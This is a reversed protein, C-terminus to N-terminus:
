SQRSGRIGLHSASCQNGIRSFHRQMFHLRISSAPQHHHQPWDALLTATGFTISNRPPNMAPIPTVYGIKRPLADRDLDFESDPAEEAYRIPAALANEGFPKRVRHLAM